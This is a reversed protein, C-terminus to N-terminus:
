TKTEKAAQARASRRNIYTRPPVPPSKTKSKEAATPKTKHRAGTNKPQSVDVHDRTSQEQTSVQVDRVQADRAQVARPSPTTPQPPPPPATDSGGEVEESEGENDPLPTLQDDLSPQHLATVDLNDEAVPQSANRQNTAIQDRVKELIAGMIDSGSWTTSLVAKSALDAGTGWKQDGTAEHLQKTGTKLLKASLDPNQQFKRLVISQMVDQEKAIWEKSSPVMKSLRKVEVPSRTRFIKNAILNKGHFQAKSHQFAQESSYFIRGEEDAFRAPHFNSFPADEGQFYINDGDERTKAKEVSYNLPLVDLDAHRYKTNDLILGNSHVKISNCGNIKALAAVDCVTKRLRQTEDSVDDNIWIYNSTKNKNLNSRSYLLANRVGEKLFRISIPRTQGHKYRGIRHAHDIDQM